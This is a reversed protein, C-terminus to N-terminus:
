NRLLAQISTLYDPAVYRHKAQDQLEALLKRADDKRGAKAYAIGLAHLYKPTRGSVTVSKEFWRIADASNDRREDVRGLFYMASPSNPDLRLAEAANAQADDLRNATLMIWSAVIHVFPALPDLVQAQAIERRAEDLRNAARLFLAYDVHTQADSPNLDLARRFADEAGPQQPHLRSLIGAQLRYLEPISPDAALGHQIAENAQRDAEEPAIFHYDGMTLYTQALGTYAMAYQPDREAAQQYSALARHFGAETGEQWASDGQLYADYAATNLTEARALVAERAPLLKLALSQAIQLTVDREIAFVDALPREYTEAWLQTQDSAQILLGTVDIESKGRRVSGELVYSVGLDRAIQKVDASSNKYRMVSTRAIVGLGRPDLRGLHTILEETMADSVYDQHPDGNLNAFPLVALMIKSPPPQIRASPRRRNLYIGAALVAALLLAVAWPLARRIEPRAAAPTPALSQPATPNTDNGSPGFGNLKEVPSIFRYGRRPLTEIFIPNDASDDLAERLKGMAVTLSHDFEVFTNGPWLRDRLDDRSVVEGPQALLAALIQFPQEQLKVKLGNKRLEGARLDAEYVGFRVASPSDHKTPM